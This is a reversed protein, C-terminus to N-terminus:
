FDTWNRKRSLRTCSLTHIELQLNIESMVQLHSVHASLAHGCTRCPDSPTSTPTPADPRPPNAPPNPNKWGNCKCSPDAKCSSYIALKELKKDAPWERVAQKRQQIRQLNSQRQKNGDERSEGPSGSSAMKTSESIIQQSALCLNVARPFTSNFLSICSAFSIGYCLM